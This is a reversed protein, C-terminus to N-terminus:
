KLFGFHKLTPIINPALNDPLNNIELWKWERVMEGPIIEGSYDVLYHVLVVDKDEEGPKPLSIIFPDEDKFNIKIGLEERARFKASERLNLSEKIKGGCFKWFDDEGSIDLLVKGDRVIVLGSAIIVKNM